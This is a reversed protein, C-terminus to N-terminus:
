CIPYFFNISKVPIPNRFFVFVDRTNLFLLDSLSSLVLVIILDSAAVLPVIEAETLEITGLRFLSLVGFKSQSYIRKVQRFVSTSRFFNFVYM